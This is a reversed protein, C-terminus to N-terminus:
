LTASIRSTASISPHLYREMFQPAELSTSRVFTLLGTSYTVRFILSYRFVKM